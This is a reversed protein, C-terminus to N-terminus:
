FRLLCKNQSPFIKGLGVDNMHESCVFHQFARMAVRTLSLFLVDVSVGCEPVEDHQGMGVGAKGIERVKNHDTM